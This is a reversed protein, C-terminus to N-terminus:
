SDTGSRFVDMFFLTFVSVVKDRKLLFMPLWLYTCEFGIFLTAVVFITIITGCVKLFSFFLLWYCRNVVCLM